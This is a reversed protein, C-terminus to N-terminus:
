PNVTEDDPFSPPFTFEDDCPECPDFDDEFFGFCPDSSSGGCPDTFGALVVQITFQCQLTVLNDNFTGKDRSIRILNKPIAEKCGGGGSIGLACCSIFNWFKIELDTMILHVDNLTQVGSTNSKNDPRALVIDFNWTELKGSALTSTPYSANLHDYCINHNNNINTHPGFQFSCFGASEACDKMTDIIKTLTYEM